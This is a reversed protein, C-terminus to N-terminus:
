LRNSISPKFVSIRARFISCAECKRIGCFSLKRASVRENDVRSLASDMSCTWSANEFQLRLPAIRAMSRGNVSLLIELGDFRHGIKCYSVELEVSFTEGPTSEVFVSSWKSPSAFFNRSGVKVIGAVGDSEEDAYERLIQGGSKISIKIAPLDDLVAM